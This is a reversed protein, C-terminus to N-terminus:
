QKVFLIEYKNLYMNFEAQVNKVTKFYDIFMKLIDDNTKDLRNGSIKVCNM